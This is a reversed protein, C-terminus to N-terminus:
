CIFNCTKFFLLPLEYLLLFDFSSPSSTYLFEDAIVKKKKRLISSYQRKEFNIKEGKKVHRKRTPSPPFIPFFLLLLRLVFSSRMVCCFGFGDLLPKMTKNSRYCNKKRWLFNYCLLQFFITKRKEKEKRVVFFCLLSSPFIYLVLQTKELFFGEKVTSVFCARACVCLVTALFGM